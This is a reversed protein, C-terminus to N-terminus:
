SCSHESNQRRRTKILTKYSVKAHYGNSRLEKAQKFLDKRCQLTRESFDENVYIGKEWLKKERYKSLIKQKDKFNHIKAIITRKKGNKGNGVRHAREIIITEEIGLNEIVSQVKEESTEWSESEEEEINEFRLNNRRSRDELESMKEEFVNISNYSEQELHRVHRKIEENNGDTFALSKKVEELEKRLEKNELKMEERIQGIKTDIREETMKLVKFLTEEHMRLIQQVQESTFSNEQMKEENKKVADVIDGNEISSKYGKKGKGAM